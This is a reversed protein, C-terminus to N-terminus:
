AGAGPLTTKLPVTAVSLVPGQADLHAACCRQVWPRLVGPRVVTAAPSTMPVTAVGGTAVALAGVPTSWETGTSPAYALSAGRPSPLPLVASYMLGMLRSPEFSGLM